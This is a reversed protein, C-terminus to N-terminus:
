SLSAPRIGVVRRRRERRGIQAYTKLPMLLSPISRLTEDGGDDRAQDCELIIWKGIIM